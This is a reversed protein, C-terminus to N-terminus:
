VHYCDYNGNPKLGRVVLLERVKGGSPNTRDRDIFVVLHIARAIQAKASRTLLLEELRYLGGKADDAHITALGGSHGTNWAELLARAAKPKRVEGVLIRDPILRLAAELCESQPIKKTALLFLHNPVRCQIEPTDEIIVLRDQPATEDILTIADILENTLTTKGSGTGGVILINRHTRIAEKLIEKHSKESINDRFEDGERKVNAPDDKHTLIQAGEYDDLSFVKNSRIRLAFAANSVIPSRVGEIRGDGIPFTTELIPNDHNFPFERIVAVDRLIAGIRSPRIDDVHKWCSGVQKTWVKGDDNVVLDTLNPLDLFRLIPAAHGQLASLRRDDYTEVTDRVPLVTETM